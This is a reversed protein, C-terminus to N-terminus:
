TIAALFSKKANEIMDMTQMGATAQQLAETNPTGSRFYIQVQDAANKADIIKLDSEDPQEFPSTWPTQFSAGYKEFDSEIKIYSGVFKQYDPLHTVKALVRLRDEKKGIIVNEFTADKCILKKIAFVKITIDPVSFAILTKQFSEVSVISDIFHTASGPIMSIIKVKSGNIKIPLSIIAPYILLKQNSNLEITKAYLERSRLGVMTLLQINTDLDIARFFDNAGPFRIIPIGTESRMEKYLINLADKLRKADPNKLYDDLLKFFTKYDAPQFRGLETPAEITAGLVIPFKISLANIGEQDNKIEQNHFQISNLGGGYCTLLYLFDTTPNLFKLFSFYDERSMGALLPKKGYASHGHADVFIRKRIPMTEDFLNKFNDINVPKFKGAELDAVLSAEQPWLDALPLRLGKEKKSFGIDLLPRGATKPNLVVWDGEPNIKVEWDKKIDNLLGQLEPQLYNKTDKAVSLLMAVLGSHAVMLIKQKIGARFSLFVSPILGKKIIENEASGNKIILMFDIYKETPQQMAGCFFVFNALVISTVRFKM